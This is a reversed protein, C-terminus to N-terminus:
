KSGNDVRKIRGGPTVRLEVMKGCGGKRTSCSIKHNGIGKKRTMSKIIAEFLMIENGCDCIIKEAQNM